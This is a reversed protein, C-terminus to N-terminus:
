GDFDEEVADCPVVTFSLNPVKRRRVSEGVHQRLYGRAGDLATLVSPLGHDFRDVVAVLLHRDSGEMPEVWAVQLDILVPDHTEGLAFALAHEVQSCLQLTKQHSRGGRDKPTHM